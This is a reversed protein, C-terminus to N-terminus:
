ILRLKREQIQGDATIYSHSGDFGASFTHDDVNATLVHINEVLAVYEDYVKGDIVLENTREVRRYIIEHAFLQTQLLIKAKAETDADRLPTSDAIPAGEVQETQEEGEAAVPEPVVEPPLKKLNFHAMVGLVLIVLLWIHFLVDMLIDITINYLLFMCLTDIAFMVLACIMWGVKHNKSFLYCLVYLAIIVASVALAIYFIGEPWFVATAYAEGYYDAPYMGCFYMAYDVLAHPITASFLFYSFTKAILMIVNIATFGAAILLNFRASNYRQIYMQRQSIPQQAKAFRAM